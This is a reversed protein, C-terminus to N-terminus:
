PLTDMQQAGASMSVVGGIMVPHGVFVETESEAPCHEFATVQGDSGVADSLQPVGVSVDVCADPEVKGSPAM